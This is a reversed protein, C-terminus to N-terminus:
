SIIMFLELYSQDGGKTWIHPVCFSVIFFIMKLIEFLGGFINCLGWMGDMRTMLFLSPCTPGTSGHWSILWQKQKTLTRPCLVFSTTSIWWNLTWHSPPYRLCWTQAPWGPQTDPHQKTTAVQVYCLHNRLNHTSYNGTLRVTIFFGYISLIFIIINYLMSGVDAALLENWYEIIVVWRNNIRPCEKQKAFM